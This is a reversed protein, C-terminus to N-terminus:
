VAARRPLFASPPQGHHESFVRSFQGLSQYGLALATETVNAEGSTLLRAAHDMRLRRLHATPGHGIAQSFGRSFHAASQGAAAALETLGIPDSLRAQMLALAARVPAPPSASPHVHLQAPAPLLLTVLELLKASAWYDRLSPAVPCSRLGLVLGSETLSCLRPGTIPTTGPPLALALEGIEPPLATVFFRWALIKVTDSASARLHTPTDHRVWLISEKPLTWTVDLLRISTGIADLSFVFLYNEGPANPSISPLAFETKGLVYEALHM